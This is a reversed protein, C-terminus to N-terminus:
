LGQLCIDLFVNFSKACFQGAHVISHSRVVGLQEPRGQVVNTCITSAGKIIAALLKNTAVEGFVNAFIEKTELFKSEVALKAQGKTHWQMQQLIPYVIGVGSLVVLIYIM